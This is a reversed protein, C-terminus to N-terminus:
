LLPALLRAIEEGITSLIRRKKRTAPMPSSQAFV